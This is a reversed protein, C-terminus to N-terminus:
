KGTVGAVDYFTDAIDEVLGQAEDLPDVVHDTVWTGAKRTARDIARRASNLFPYKKFTDLISGTKKYGDKMWKRIGTIRSKRLEKIYKYKEYAQALGTKGRGRKDMEDQEEQNIPNYFINRSPNLISMTYTYSKNKYDVPLINFGQM